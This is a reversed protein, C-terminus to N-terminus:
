KVIFKVENSVLGGGTHVKVVKEGARGTIEKTVSVELVTDSSSLTKPVIGDFLAFSGSDFGTGVIKVSGEWGSKVEGPDLYAIQPSSASSTTRVGSAGEILTGKIGKEGAIKLEVDIGDKVNVKVIVSILEIGNPFFLRTTGDAKVAANSKLNEFVAALVQRTSKEVDGISDNARLEQKNM